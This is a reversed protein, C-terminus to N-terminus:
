IIKNILEVHFIGTLRKENEEGKEDLACGEIRMSLSECFRRVIKSHDGDRIMILNQNGASVVVVDM